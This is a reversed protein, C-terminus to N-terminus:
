KNRPFFYDHLPKPDEDDGRQRPKEQNLLSAMLVTDFHTIATITTARIIFRRAFGAPVTPIRM